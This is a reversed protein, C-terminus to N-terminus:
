RVGQMLQEVILYISGAYIRRCGSSPARAARLLDRLSLVAQGRECVAACQHDAIGTGAQGIKWWAGLQDPDTFGDSSRTDKLAQEMEADMTAKCDHDAVLAHTYTVKSSGEAEPTHTVHWPVVLTMNEIRHALHSWMMKDSACKLYGSANLETEGQFRGGGLICMDQGRADLFKTEDIPRGEKSADNHEAFYELNHGIMIFAHARQAFAARWEEHLRILEDGFSTSESDVIRTVTAGNCYETRTASCGTMVPCGGRPSCQVSRGPPSLCEARSSLHSNAAAATMVIEGMYSPGHFLLHTDAPILLSSWDRSSNLSRIAPCSHELAAVQCTFQSAGPNSLLADAIESTGLATERQECSDQATLVGAHATRGPIAVGAALAGLM